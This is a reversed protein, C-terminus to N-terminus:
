RRVGRVLDESMARPVKRKKLDAVVSEMPYSFRVIRARPPVGERLDVLAFSGRPDGDVPRGVSGSNVVLVGAVTRAFPIHSHGCALVAPRAAGLKGLLAPETISPFIYDTDALPSGHVVTVESGSAFLQLAEPLAAMWALEAPGLAEATWALTARKKHRRARRRGKPDAALACVKRDVNGAVTPLRQEMLLRVVETPHPGGGVLDGACLVQDAGAAAAQELAVCLAPFNAHIDSLVAIRM